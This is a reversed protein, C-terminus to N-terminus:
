TGSDEASLKRIDDRSVAIARGFGAVYQGALFELRHLTFDALEFTVGGDAFKSIYRERGAIWVLTGRECTRAVCEFMVRRLQLPDKDPADQEHLLVGVRAGDTLGRAHRALRSAHILVGDHAALSVFPLLGAYPLGDALVAISLVRQEDLLARLAHATSKLM